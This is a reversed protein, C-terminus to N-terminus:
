RAGADGVDLTPILNKDLEVPRIRENVAGKATWQELSLVGADAWGSWAYFYKNGGTGFDYVNNAVETPFFDNGNVVAAAGDGNRMPVGTLAFLNDTIHLDDTKAWLKWGGGFRKGPDAIKSGADNYITNRDIWVHAVGRNMAAEWGMIHVGFGNTVRIRNNCVRVWESGSGVTVGRGDCLNGEVVVYRSRQDFLKQAVGDGGGLPGVRLEGDRLTNGMVWCNQGHQLTICGKATDQPDAPRRDLNTFDNHAILVRDFHNMRVIHQRTSNPVVNNTVVVDTGSLWVFYGVLCQDNPVFCENVLLGDPKRNCNIADGARIFQVNRITLNTGVAYVGYRDQAATVDIRLNRITVNRSVPGLELAAAWQPLTAAITSREGDIVINKGTIRIPSTIAFATAAPFRYITDDAWAIKTLDADAPVQVENPMAALTVRERAVEIGDVTCAITYEGEFVVAWAAIGGRLERKGDLTWRVDADWPTGEPAKAHITGPVYDPRHSIISPGHPPPAPTPAKELEAVRAALADREAAFQFAVKSLDSLAQERDLDHQRVGELATLVAQQFQLFNIPEIAM